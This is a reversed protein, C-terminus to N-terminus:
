AGIREGTDRDFLHCISAPVSAGFMDGIEASFNKPVKVAVLAGGAHVSVMSAEGLLELSFIPASIEGGSPVPTADEARFARVEVEILGSSYSIRVMDEWYSLLEEISADRQNDSSYRAYIAVRTTPCDKRLEM